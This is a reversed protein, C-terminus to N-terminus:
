FRDHGAVQCDRIGGLVQGIALIPTDAPHGYFGISVAFFLANREANAQKDRRAEGVLWKRRDSGIRM